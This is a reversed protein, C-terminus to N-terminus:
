TSVLLGMIEQKPSERGRQRPPLSMPGFLRPLEMPSSLHHFPSAFQLSGQRRSGMHTHRIHRSHNPFRNNHLSHLSGMSCNHSRLAPMRSSSNISWRCWRCISLLITCIAHHKKENKFLICDSRKQVLHRWSYSIFHRHRLLNV